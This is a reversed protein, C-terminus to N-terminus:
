RKGKKPSRAVKQLARKKSKIYEEYATKTITYFGGDVNCQMQFQLNGSATVRRKSLKVNASGCRPCTWKDLGGAVGAHTKPTCFGVMRLYVKELERVDGANYRAMKELEVKDNDLTIKRWMEYDTKIKGKRGMVLSLYDLKNSNFYFYKAAWAKTDITKYKPIPPLGLIFCRGRVWPLDFGDGYHAILEDAVEAVKLFKEIMTKDDKNKDWTLIHVKREGLWKYAITIIKREQVIANHGIDLNYGTRWFFGLNPSTEIDWILRRVKNLKTM